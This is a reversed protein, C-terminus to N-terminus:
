YGVYDGVALRGPRVVQCYVGMSAGHREALLRLLEPTAEVTDPDKTIVVCRECRSVAELEAEGARIRRGVWGVEEEPESGDVYLNARFRRHDVAMGAELSFAAVSALNVLLVQADDFNGGPLERLQLPRASEVELQRVLAGDLRASSGDPTAVQVGGGSVLSARYTLLRDHNKINLLKGARHPAGDVLAWRRDGELGIDTVTCSGLREGAMSKVPYRWIEVISAM